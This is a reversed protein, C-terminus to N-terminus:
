SQTDQYSKQMSEQMNALKVNRKELMFVVTVYIWADMRVESSITCEDNILKLRIDRHLYETFVSTGIMNLM